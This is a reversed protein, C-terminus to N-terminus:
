NSWHRRYDEILESFVASEGRLYFGILSGHTFRDLDWGRLLLAARFLFVDRDEQSRNAWGQSAYVQPLTTLFENVCEDYDSANRQVWAMANAGEDENYHYVSM